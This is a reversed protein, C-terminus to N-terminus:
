LYRRVLTVYETHYQETSSNYCGFATDGYKVKCDKLKHSLIKIGAWLAYDPFNMLMYGSLKYPKISNLNVQMIGVDTVLESMEGQSNLGVVTRHNLPDLGSEQMAIAVVLIPDVKFEKSYKSIQDALNQAVVRDMKPKLKIIKNFVRNNDKAFVTSNFLLMIFILKSFM